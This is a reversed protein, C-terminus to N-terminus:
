RKRQIQVSLGLRRYLYMGAAAVLVLALIVYVWVPWPWPFQVGPSPTVSFLLKAAAAAGLALGSTSGPPVTGAVLNTMYDGPSADAPVDLTLPVSTAQKPDLHFRPKGIHIWGAPAVRQAGQSLRAVHVAYDSPETGTNVVYMAPLAYSNGPHASEALVIPSASVGTGLSAEAAIPLFGAVALALCLVRGVARPM